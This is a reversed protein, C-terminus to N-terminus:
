WHEGLAPPFGEAIRGKIAAGPDALHVPQQARTAFEHEEPVM